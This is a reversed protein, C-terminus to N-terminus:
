ATVEEDDDSDDLGYTAAMNVSYSYVLERAAQMATVDKKMQEIRSLSDAVQREMDKVFESNLTMLATPSDAPKVYNASDDWGKRSGPIEAVGSKLFMTYQALAQEPSDGHVHVERGNGLPISYIATKINETVWRKAQYIRGSARRSRRTLASGGSPFLKQMGDDCHYSTGRGVGEPVDIQGLARRLDWEGPDIEYIERPDWGGTADSGEAVAPISSEKLQLVAGVNNYYSDYPEYDSARLKADPGRPHRETLDFLMAAKRDSVLLAKYDRLRM